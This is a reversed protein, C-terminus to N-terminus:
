ERAKKREEFVKRVQKPMDNFLTTVVNENSIM